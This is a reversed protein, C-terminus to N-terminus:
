WKEDKARKRNYLERELKLAKKHPLKKVRKRPKKKHKSRLKEPLKISLPYAVNTATNGIDHALWSM